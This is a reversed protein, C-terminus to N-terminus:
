DSADRIILEMKAHTRDIFDGQCRALLESAKLRDPMEAGPVEGRMVRSWFDQREMAGAIRRKRAEDQLNEIHSWIDSDNLLREGTQRARRESYGALRAAESANGCAAYHEAFARQRPNM